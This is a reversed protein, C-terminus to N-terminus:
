RRGRKNESREGIQGSSFGFQKRFVGQSSLLQDNETSLDLLRDVPLGVPKEQHEQSSHNPGPFLNEENNLWLRKQSPRTLEEAQEPLV